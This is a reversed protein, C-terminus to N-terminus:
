GIYFQCQKRREMPTRLFTGVSNSFEVDYISLLPFQRRSINPVDGYFGILSNDDAFFAGENFINTHIGLIGEPHIYFDGANNLESIQASLWCGAFLFVFLLSYRM